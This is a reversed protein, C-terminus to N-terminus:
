DLTTNEIHSLVQMVWVVSVYVSHFTYTLAAIADM